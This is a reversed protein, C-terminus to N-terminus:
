ITADTNQPPQREAVLVRCLTELRREIMTLRKLIKAELM